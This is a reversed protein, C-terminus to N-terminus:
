PELSKGEADLRSGRAVVMNDSAKLISAAVRVGLRSEALALIQTLRHAYTHHQQVQRMGAEAMVRREDEHHLYWDIKEFLEKPREYSVLHEGEHLGLSALDNQDLRNTLLFTGSCLVEFVRMNIENRISYNFGIRGQSYLAGLETSPAHGLFSNPYRERLAQLYFKRPVGGETGVCVLAWRQPKQGGRHLELDCAVPVWAGNQLARAGDHHVCCVLDYRPALRRVQRWPNKLHTDTALFIKPSLHDPLDARYDGHDIRLYLDYGAPIEHSRSTWFHDYAVGLQRCAREFYGGITDERAKDFVLALRM